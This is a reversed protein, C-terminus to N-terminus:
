NGIYPLVGIGGESERLADEVLRRKGEMQALPKEADKRVSTDRIAAM